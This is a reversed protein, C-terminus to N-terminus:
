CVDITARRASCAVNFANRCLPQVFKPSPVTPNSKAALLLPVGNIYNPLRLIQNVGKEIMKVRLFSFMNGISLFAHSDCHM